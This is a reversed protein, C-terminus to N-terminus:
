IVKYFSDIIHCNLISVTMILYAPILTLPVFFEKTLMCFAKFLNIKGFVWLITGTVIVSIFDLCFFWLIANSADWINDIKGGTWIEAGVDLMIGANPGYYAMAQVALFGLPIIFELLENLVLAQILDIQQGIKEQGRKRLWVVKVALYINISFDIGLLLYATNASAIGGITNCVHIGHRGGINYGAVMQAGQEDGNAMKAVLKSWVWVNVERIVTLVLASIPQYNTDKTGALIGYYFFYLFNIAVGYLQMWICNKLRKRFEPNKRWDEPFGFWITPLLLFVMFTTMTIGLWPFPWNRELLHVWLIYLISTILFCIVNTFISIKAIYSLKRITEINMCYGFKLFIYYIAWSCFNPIMMIMIEYWYEQALLINHFPILTYGSSALGTLLITVVVHIAFNAWDVDITDNALIKTFNQTRVHLYLEHNVREAEIATVKGDEECKDDVNGVLKGIERENPSPLNRVQITAIGVEIQEGKGGHLSRSLKQDAINGVGSRGSVKASKNAYPYVKNM